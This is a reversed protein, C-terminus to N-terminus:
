LRKLGNFNKEALACLEATKAQNDPPTTSTTIATRAILHDLLNPDSYRLPPAQDVLSCFAHIKQTNSNLAIFPTNLCFAAISHHFRGSVLFAADNITDLWEEMSSAVVLKWHATSNNKLFQVFALDDRAPFAAAGILVQIEYGKQDLYELYRCFQTPGSETFAISGGGMQDLHELYHYLQAAGSETFAISGAIVVRKKQTQKPQNYHDRIYLPLCDFSLTSSIGIDAMVKQSIPERIAVFDIKSYVSHYISQARLLEQYPDPNVKPYASHNIIEVHKGLFRKSLHALYLLAKPSHGLDHITGEGTIVVAASSRIQEILDKNVEQFRDFREASDFEEFPPVEQLSNKLTIPFVVLEFGLKQIQEKLATSTGTCGWHYWASTDNFLIIKEAAFASSFPLLISLITRFLSM